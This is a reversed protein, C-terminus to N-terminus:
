GGAQQGSLTRLLLKLQRWVTFPIEHGGDFPVWTVKAGGAMVRDRLREGAAFSLDPDDRGHSVLVPLGQFRHMRGQWEDWAISSSSFLAMGELTLKEHLYTDCALMGGQSFGALVLPLGDHRRRMETAVRLLVGRATDREEPHESSLDRAGKEMMARRREVDISWWSWGREPAPVLGRPLCLAAGSAMALALSALDEPEMSYGHLLILVCRVGGEPSHYLCPTGGVIERVFPPM